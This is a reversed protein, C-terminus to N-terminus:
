NLTIKFIKPVNHVSFEEGQLNTNKRKIDLLTEKTQFINIVLCVNITELGRKMKWLGRVRQSNNRDMTSLFRIKSLLKKEM